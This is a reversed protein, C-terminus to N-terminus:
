WVSSWTVGDFLCGSRGVLHIVVDGSSPVSDIRCSWWGAFWGCRCSVEDSCYESYPPFCRVERCQGCFIASPFWNSAVEFRHRGEECVILALMVAGVRLVCEAFAFRLRRRTPVTVKGSDLRTLGFMRM